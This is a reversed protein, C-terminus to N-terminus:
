DRSVKPSGVWSASSLSHEFVCSAIFPQQDDRGVPVGSSADLRIAVVDIGLEPAGEVVESNLARLPVAEGLVFFLGPIVLKRAPIEGAAQSREIRLTDRQLDDM